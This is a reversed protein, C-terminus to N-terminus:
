VKNFKKLNPNTERNKLAFEKLEKAKNIVQMIDGTTEYLDICYAIQSPHMFHCIKNRFFTCNQGHSCISIKDNVYPIVLNTRDIVIKREHDRSVYRDRSHSRYRSSRHRDRSRSRSRGRSSRHRDRSRSRSRSRSRNRSSHTFKRSHSRDRSRSRDRSINLSNHNVTSDFPIFLKNQSEIRRMSSEIHDVPKLYSNIQHRMEIPRRVDVSYRPQDVPRRIDVNQPPLDFPRRVDVSYRPPDVPRRIDVNQPPLDFPRRVDVSYRPPDVPRRVDVSYRPLDAPRRVDVSYRPPDVPRSADVNQRPPDVPRSADVNQRPPDFFYPSSTFSRSLPEFSSIPPGSFCSPALKFSTNSPKYSVIRSYDPDYNNHDLNCIKDLGPCSDGNKCYSDYLFLDPKSKHKYLCKHNIFYCKSGNPCIQKIEGPESDKMTITINKDNNSTDKIINIEPMSNTNNIIYIFYEIKKLNNM